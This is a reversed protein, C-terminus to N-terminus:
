ARESCIYNIIFFISNRKILGERGYVIEFLLLYERQCKCEIQLADGLGKLSSWGWKSILKKFTSERGNQILM